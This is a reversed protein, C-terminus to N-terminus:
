RASQTAMLARQPRLMSVLSHPRMLFKSLADHAVVVIAGQPEALLVPVVDGLPDAAAGASEDAGTTVDAGTAGVGAAGCTVSGECGAPSGPATGM